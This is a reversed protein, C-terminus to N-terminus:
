PFHSGVTKVTCVCSCPHLVLFLSNTEAKSKLEQFKCHLNAVCSPNLEKINIHTHQLSNGHSCVNTFMVMKKAIEWRNAEKELTLGPLNDQFEATKHLSNLKFFSSYRFCM